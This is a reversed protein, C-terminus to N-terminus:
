ANDMRGSVGTRSTQWLDNLPFSKLLWGWDQITGKSFPNDAFGILRGQGFERIEFPARDTPWTFQNQPSPDTKKQEAEVAAELGGDITTEILAETPSPVLNGYQDLHVM